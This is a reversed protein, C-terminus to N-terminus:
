PKQTLIYKIAIGKLIKHYFIQFKKLAKTM